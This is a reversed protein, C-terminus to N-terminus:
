YATRKTKIKRLQRTLKEVCSSVAKKFDDSDERANLTQGPIHITIDAKKISDKTNQYSLKVDVSLIDDNFRKLSNVETNIHQKLSYHAKFKRATVTINM